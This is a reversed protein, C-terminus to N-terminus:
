RTNHKDLWASPTLGTIRKFARNFSSKSGFGCASAIGAISYRQHEGDKLRSKMEEVRYQNILDSFNTQLTENLIQSIHHRPIGTERSLVPLSFDSNIWPKQESLYSLIIEKKDQLLEPTLPSTSYKSSNSALALKPLIRDRGLVVYGLVHIAAALTFIMVLEMITGDWQQSWFLLMTIFFLVIMGAFTLTFKKLWSLRLRNIINRKQLRQLYLLAACCYGLLLLKLTSAKLVRMLPPREEPLQVITNIVELKRIDTWQYVPWWEYLFYLAPALHLLDIWRMQHTPNSSRCIFFYFCPGMLYLVPVLVGYLDPYTLLINGIYLLYNVMWLSVLLLLASLWSLGQEHRGKIWILVTLYLGHITIAVFLILFLQYEFADLQMPIFISDQM